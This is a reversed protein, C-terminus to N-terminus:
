AHRMAAMRCACIQQVCARLAALWRAGHGGKRQRMLLGRHRAFAEAQQQAKDAHRNEAARQRRRADRNRRDIRDRQGRQAGRDGPEARQRQKITSRRGSGGRCSHGCNATAISHTLM